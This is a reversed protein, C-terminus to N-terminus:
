IIKWGNINFIGESINEQVNHWYCAIYFYVIVNNCFLSGFALPREHANNKRKIKDTCKYSDWPDCIGLIRITGAM